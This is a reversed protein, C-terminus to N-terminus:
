CSFFGIEIGGITAFGNKPIMTVLVNDDDEAGLDEMLNTIGIRLRTKTTERHKSKRPLHVFSGAFETKDPGIPAEYEDPVYNIYVDFKVHAHVAVEIGEIVLVEEEEEKDRKNRRVKVTVKKDLKIPFVATSTEAMPTKKLPLPTPQSNLWPLEVNQYVYGLEANDLCDRLKVRVLQKNEDYFIFRTDLWDPDTFDHRRGGLTKWITWMRDVNSHHAYFIPDRAASYFAGMNEHHPQSQDGTWDHATKHPVHEISGAAPIPDVEGARYPTGLFLCATNGSSIMQRYMTTLNIAVQRDINLQRIVAHVRTSKHSSTSISPVKNFHYDLDIVPCSSSTRKSRLPDYLPSNSDEYMSPMQMGKPADWNWFPLAFTPDGILKGLIKEHFYLFFRHFPFFLWSTHVQFSHEPFGVQPYADCCYACHLNAQQTFNRPDDEPLEKMLKIAREYKAIYDQDVLHAARRIRMTRPRPPLKFDVIKADKPPCCDVKPAGEDLLVGKCNTLDPELFIRTTLTSTTTTTTSYAPTSTTTTSSSYAAATTTTSAPFSAM